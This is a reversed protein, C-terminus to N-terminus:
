GVSTQVSVRPLPTEMFKEEALQDAAEGTSLNKNDALIFIQGLTEEIRAVHAMMADRTLPYNYPNRGTRAFYEYGVSTIGGSNIAYDPAYLIGRDQILIDHRREALQNNAAGGIIAAKIEPITRDNLIAGMACPAFIDAEAAHITIPDGIMAKAGFEAQAKEIADKNLDAVILEAGAAILYRALAYGVAGMGQIAVKRGALSSDGFKEKACAKLGCFVGYATVPSPNGAVGNEHGAASEPLGAVFSTSKSIEIMDAETSGVDEATIYTGGLSEIAEGFAHFLEATKIQRPNGIIVAKGGGLPLGALASKYTMGKSLRLVDNVAEDQSAYPYIRCGGLSPGLNTNHVAIIAQLGTSQDQFLVVEEHKDFSSHSSVDLTKSSIM